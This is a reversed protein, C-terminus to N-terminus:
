TVVWRGMSQEGIEGSQFSFYFHSESSSEDYAGWLLTDIWDSM